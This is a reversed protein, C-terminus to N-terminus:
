KFIIKITAGNGKIYLAYYAFLYFRDIILVEHIEDIFCLFGLSQGWAKM